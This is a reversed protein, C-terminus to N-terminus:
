LFTVTEGETAMMKGCKRLHVQPKAAGWDM